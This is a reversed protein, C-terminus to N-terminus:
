DLYRELNRITEELIRKTGALEQFYWVDELSYYDTKWPYYKIDSQTNDIKNEVDSLKDKLIDITKEICGLDKLIYSIWTIFEVDGDEPDYDELIDLLYEIARRGINIIKRENGKIIFYDLKEYIDEPQWNWEELIPLVRSKEKFDVRRFYSIFIDEARRDRKQVLIDIIERGWISDKYMNILIPVVDEKLSKIKEWDDKAALFYVKEDLRETSWNWKELLTAAKSRQTQTKGNKLIFILINKVDENGQGFEELLDIANGNFDGGSTNKIYEIIPRRAALDMNKLIAFCLKNEKYKREEMIFNIVANAASEGFLSFVEGLYPTNENYLEYGYKLEYILEEIMINEGVWNSLSKAMKIIEDRDRYKGSRLDKFMKQVAYRKRIEDDEINLSGLINIVRKRIISDRDRLFEKLPGVSEKGYFKVKDWDCKAILFYVEEENNNPQWNLKELIKAAEYRIKWNEGRLLQVAKPIIRERVEQKQLLSGPLNLIEKLIELKKEHRKEKFELIQEEKELDEKVNAVFEDQYERDLEMLIEQLDPRFSGFFDDYSVSVEKILSKLALKGMKKLEKKAMKNENCFYAMSFYNVKEEISESNEILFKLIKKRMNIDFNFDKLKSKLLNKVKKKYSESFSPNNLFNKALNIVSYFNQNIYNLDNLYIKIRELYIDPNRNDISQLLNDINVIYDYNNQHEREQLDRDISDNQKSVLNKVEELVRIFERIQEESINSLKEKINDWKGSLLYYKLLQKDDLENFDINLNDILGNYIERHPVKFFETPFNFIEGVLQQRNEDDLNKYIEIIRGLINSIRNHEEPTYGELNRVENLITEIM